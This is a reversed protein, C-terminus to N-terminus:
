KMGISITPYEGVAIRELTEKDNIRIQVLITKGDLVEAKEITGIVEEERTLQNNTISIIPIEGSGSAIAQVSLNKICNKHGTFKGNAYVSKVEKECVNCISYIKDKTM